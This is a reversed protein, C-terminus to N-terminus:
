GFAAAPWRPGDDDGPEAAEIREWLPRIADPDGQLATTLAKVVPWRLYCAAPPTKALLATAAKATLPATGRGMLAPIAPYAAALRLGRLAAQLTHVAEPYSQEGTPSTLDHATNWLFALDDPDVECARRLRRHGALRSHTGGVHDPLHVLDLSGHQDGPRPHQHGRLHPGPLVPRMLPPLQAPRAARKGRPVVPPAQHEPPSRAAPQRQRIPGRAARDVLMKDVKEASYNGKLTSESANMVDTIQLWSAGRALAQRLVVAITDELERRLAVCVTLSELPMTPVPHQARHDLAQAKTLVARTLRVVDDDYSRPTAPVAARYRYSASRCRSSCYKPLRGTSKPRKFSQRCYGCIFRPNNKTM